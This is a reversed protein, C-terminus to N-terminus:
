DASGKYSSKIIRGTRERYIIETLFALGVMALLVWLEKPSIMVRQVILIVLAVLCLIGGVAPIWRRAGTNPAL